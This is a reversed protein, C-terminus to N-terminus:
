TTPGLSELQACLRDYVKKIDWHSFSELIHKDRSLVEFGYSFIEATLAGKWSSNRVCRVRSRQVHLIGSSDKADNQIPKWEAIESLVMLLSWLQQAWALDPSQFEAHHYVDCGAERTWDLVYPRALNPHRSSGLFVFSETRLSVHKISFHVHLSRVAAAIYSGLKRRDEGSPKPVQLLVDRLNTPQSTHQYVIATRPGDVFYGDIPLTRAEEERFPACTPVREQLESIRRCVDEKPKASWELLGIVMGRPRVWSCKSRGSPEPGEFNVTKLLDPM